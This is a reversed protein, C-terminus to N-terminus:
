KSTPPSWCIGPTDPPFLSVPPAHAGPYPPPCRQWDPPASTRVPHCLSRARASMESFDSHTPHHASCPHQFLTEPLPFLLHLPGSIFTSPSTLFALLGTPRSRMPMPSTTLGPWIPRRPWPVFKNNQTLTSAMLTSLLSNADDAKALLIRM